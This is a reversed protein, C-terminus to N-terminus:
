IFRNTKKYNMIYLSTPKVERYYDLSHFKTPFIHIETTDKYGSEYDDDLTHWKIVKYLIASYERTGGDKYTKKIPVLLVFLIGIILLIVKFNLKSKLNNNDM